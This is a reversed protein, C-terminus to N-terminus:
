QHKRKYRESARALIRREHESLSAEGSESIKRLIDDVDDDLQREASRRVPYARRPRHSSSRVRPLRDWLRELNLDFKWYVFGFALGGLHAAHAIGTYVQNGALELLLPHLDYIVYLVVIWRVELPFFWFV